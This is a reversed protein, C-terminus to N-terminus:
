VHTKGQLLVLVDHLRVESVVRVVRGQLQEDPQAPGDAVAFARPVDEEDVVIM